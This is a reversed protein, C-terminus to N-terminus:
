TSSIAAARRTPSSEPPPPSSYSRFKPSRCSNSVDPSATPCPPSPSTSKEQSFRPYPRNPPAPTCNSRYPRTPPASPKSCTPCCATSPPSPPTSPSHGPYARPKACTTRCHKGTPARACLTPKSDNVPPPHTRRQPKDRTFLPQGTEEELRQISRTLASPSLNCARSARGFHLQDAVAIFIDIDHINM